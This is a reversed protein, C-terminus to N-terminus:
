KAGLRTILMDIFRRNGVGTAVHVNPQIKTRGVTDMHDGSSVNKEVSGTRDAVTEGRAFAGLTEVDVRLIKTQLLTPDIVAGVALADHLLQTPKQAAPRRGRPGHASGFRGFGTEVAENAKGEEERTRTLPM